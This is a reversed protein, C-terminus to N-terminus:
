DDLLHMCGCDAFTSQYPSNTSPTCDCCVLTRGHFSDCWCGTIRYGWAHSPQYGPPCRTELGIGESCEYSCFRGNPLSCTGWNKQHECWARSKRRGNSFIPLNFIRLVGYFLDNFISDVYASKNVWRALLEFFLISRQNIM